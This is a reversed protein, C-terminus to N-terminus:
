GCDLEFHTVLVEERLRRRLERPESCGLLLEVSEKLRATAKEITRGESAVGMEPCFAVYGSSERRLVATFRKLPAKKNGGKSGNGRARTSTARRRRPGAMPRMRLEDRARM